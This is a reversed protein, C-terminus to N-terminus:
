MSTDGGDFIKTFQDKFWNNITEGDKEEETKASEAKPKFSPESETNNKEEFVEEKKDEESRKRMLEERRQIEERRKAAAKEEEEAPNEIILELKPEEARKRPEIMLEPIPNESFGTAIITVSLEDGMKENYGNGWIVSVDDGVVDQVYDTIQSVEQMTVEESGSIINLLINRAGVINNSNLLPSTLAEEIARISRDPGSASASGMVAVGSNKMVTEVDAFDVNVYGAVTIIEAISKAAVSLVNDAEAFADSLKLDGYMLRLKENNIILLADVHKELNEIGELAQQIRKKGEFRFPITVIGVTLVDQQRAAEAIIPAAGTGTGGGMGATVFVMKTKESLVRNIDDLSEIASERGREPKNGAGRGETLSKGLQVKIPVPSNELAQSDTNCIVFDVGTIGERLMHNVANGGGGGVGIVKIISKEKPEFDVPLLEDIM